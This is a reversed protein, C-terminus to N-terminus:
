KKKDERYTRIKKVAHYFHRQYFVPLYCVIPLAFGIARLDTQVLMNYIGHYIIAATLLAFTGCYFLRKRKRIFSMGFGIMMTCIGHMLATSCGRAAAWALTVQGLNQVLIVTNEFFGFGIGLALSIPLLKSRDDSILFAFILIPLAKSIEEIAPTITTTVYLKDLGEKGCAELVLTNIESAFLSIFIGILMYGVILRSRGELLFILFTIPAVVCVFLVYIVNDM